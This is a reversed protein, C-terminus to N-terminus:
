LHGFTVFLHHLRHFNECLMELPNPASMDAAYKKLNKELQQFFASESPTEVFEGTESEKPMEDVSATYKDTNEM